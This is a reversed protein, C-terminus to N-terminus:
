DEDATQWGASLEEDSDEDCSANSDTDHEGQSDEAEKCESSSEDEDNWRPYPSPVKIDPGDETLRVVAEELM